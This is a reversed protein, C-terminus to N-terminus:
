NTPIVSQAKYLRIIERLLHAAELEVSTGQERAYRKLDAIAGQPLQITLDKLAPPVSRSQQKNNAKHDIAFTGVSTVRIDSNQILKSVALRVERSSYQPLLIEIDKGTLEGPKLAINTLIHTELKRDYEELGEAISNIHAFRDDLDERVKDISQSVGKETWTSLVSPQSAQPITSLM